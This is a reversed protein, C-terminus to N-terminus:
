PVREPGKDIYRAAFTRMADLAKDTYRECGLMQTWATAAVEYPMDTANEHLLLHYGDNQEVVLAELKRTLAAPSGKRYQINIRGHELTHVLQGLEPTDGPLYTGDEYWRPFHQGSTPPNTKYDSSKFQKEAHGAGEYRANTLKCGAAEAAKRWDGERQAPLRPLDSRATTAQPDSPHSSGDGTLALAAGVTAAVAVVALSGAGVYALRKRRHAAREDQAERELREQRRQEKLEKRSSM